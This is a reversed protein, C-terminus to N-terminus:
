KGSMVHEMADFMWYLELEIDAGKTQNLGSYRRYRGDSTCVLACFVILVTWQSFFECKLRNYTTICCSRVLAHMQIVPICNKELHPFSWAVASISVTCHSVSFAPLYLIYWANPLVCAPMHEFALTTSLVVLFFILPIVKQEKQTHCTTPWATLSLERASNVSSSTHIWSRVTLDGWWSATRVALYPSPPRILLVCLYADQSVSLM